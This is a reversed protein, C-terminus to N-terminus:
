KHLNFSHIWLLVLWFHTWVFLHIGWLLFVLIHLTLFLLRLDRIQIEVVVVVVFQGRRWCLWFGALALSGGRRQRGTNFTGTDRPDLPLQANLNFLHRQLFSRTTEISGGGHTHCSTDAAARGIACPYQLSAVAELGSRALGQQRGAGRQRLVGACLSSRSTAPVWIYSGRDSRVVERHLTLLLLRRSALSRLRLGAEGRPLMWAAAWVSLDGFGRGGRGGRVTDGRRGWGGGVERRRRGGGGGSSGNPSGQTEGVGKVGVVGVCLAVSLHGCSLVFVVGSHGRRRRYHGCRSVVSVLQWHPLDHGHRDCSSARRRGRCGCCTHRDVSPSGMAVCMACKCTYLMNPKCIHIQRVVKIETKCSTQWHFHKKTHTHTHACTVILGCTPVTLFPQVTVGDTCRNPRVAMIWRNFHPTLSRPDSSWELIQSESIQNGSHKPNLVSHDSFLKPHNRLPKFSSWVRSSQM